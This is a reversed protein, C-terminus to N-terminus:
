GRDAGGEAKQLKRITRFFVRWYDKYKKDIDTDLETNLYKAIQELINMQNNQNVKCWDRLHMDTLDDFLSRSGKHQDKLKNAAEKRLKTVKQAFDNKDSSEVCFRELRGLLNYPLGKSDEARSAAVAVVMRLVHDKYIEQLIPKAAPVIQVEQFSDESLEWFENIHIRQKVIRVQGYGLNRKEGLGEQMLTILRDNLSEQTLNLDQEQQDFLQLLFCSGASWCQFEQEPMKWQSVFSKRTEVRAFSKKIKIKAVAMKEQLYAILDSESVFSSGNANNIILPSRLYMLLENSELDQKDDQERNFLDNISYHNLEVPKFEIEAAGYQTNLSRGLRIPTPGEGVFLKTFSDLAEKTGVITGNFKQGPKLSEYHYIGGEKIHGEIREDAKNSDSNRVLHFNVMKDTEHTYIGKNLMCCYGGISKTGESNLEPDLLDYINQKAKDTHLFLPTPDLLYEDKINSNRLGPYANSFSLHGDIFLQKFISDQHAKAQDINRQRILQNAFFGHLASGPIHDFTTVMNEDGDPATFILPATNKIWYELKHTGKPKGELKVKFGSNTEQNVSSPWLPQKEDSWIGLDEIIQDAMEKGDETLLSCRVTGWGRNRGSGARKLNRCALALLAAIEQQKETYIIKINGYFNHNAKLIRITRLSNEKAYGEQNIATQQRIDTFANMVSEKSFFHKYEKKISQLCNVIDKYDTFYLNDVRIGAPTTPSGFVIEEIDASFVGALETQQFMELVEVASERLLGKFRKGPFLPLGYDDFIIDSDIYSGRGSGSGLMLISQNTIKVTLM